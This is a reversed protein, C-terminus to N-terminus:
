CAVPGEVDADGFALRVVADVLEVDAVVSGWCVIPVETWCCPGGAFIAARPV